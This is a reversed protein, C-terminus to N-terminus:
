NSKQDFMGRLTSQNSMGGGGGAGVFQQYFDEKM